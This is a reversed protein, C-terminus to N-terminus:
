KENYSLGNAYVAMCFCILGCVLTIIGIIILLNM